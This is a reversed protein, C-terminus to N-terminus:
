YWFQQKMWTDFGGSFKKNDIVLYGQIETYVQFKPYM